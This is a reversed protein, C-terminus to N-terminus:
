PQLVIRTYCMYLLIRCANTVRTCAVKVCSTSCTRTCVPTSLICFRASRTYICESLITNTTMVHTSVNECFVYLLGARAPYFNTYQHVFTRYQRPITRYQRIFAIVMMSKVEMIPCLIIRQNEETKELWKMRALGCNNGPVPQLKGTKRSFLM